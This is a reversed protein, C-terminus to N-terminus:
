PFAQFNTVCVPLHCSFFFVVLTNWAKRGQAVDEFHHQIQTCTPVNLTTAKRMGRLAKNQPWHRPRLEGAVSLPVSLIELGLFFGFWQNLNMLNGTLLCMIADCQWNIDSPNWTRLWSITEHSKTLCDIVQHGQSSRACRSPVCCWFSSSVSTQYVRDPNIDYVSSDKLHHTM